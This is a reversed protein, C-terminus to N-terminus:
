KGKSAAAVRAMAERARQAKVAKQNAVAAAIKESTNM